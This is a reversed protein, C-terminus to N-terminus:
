MVWGVSGGYKLSYKGVFKDFDDYVFIVNFLNVNYMVVLFVFIYMFVNVSVIM